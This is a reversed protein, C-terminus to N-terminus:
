FKNREKQRQRESVWHILRGFCAVVVGAPGYVLPYICMTKLYDGNGMYWVTYAGLAAGATGFLFATTLLSPKASLIRWVIRTKITTM